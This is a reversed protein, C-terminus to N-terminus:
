VIAAKLKDLEDPYYIEDWGAASLANLDDQDWAGDIFLIIKNVGPRHTFANITSNWTYRLGVVRGCLEKRKDRPDKAASQWNIITNQIKVVTTTGTNQPLGAKEAFCAQYQIPSIDPIYRKLILYLPDFMRYTCLKVEIISNILTKETKKSDILSNIQKIGIERLKLALTKSVGEILERKFPSPRRMIWSSFGFGGGFQNASTLDSPTGFGNSIVDRAMQAIGYGNSLNKHAKILEMTYTVIWIDDPPWSEPAEEQKILANPDSALEIVCCFFFEPDILRDVNNKFYKGICSINPLNRLQKIWSQMVDNSDMSHYLFILSDDDLLSVASAIDPDTPTAKGISKGAFGISYIYDPFDEIKMRRNRYLALAKEVDEFVLLKSIGRRLYTAHAVPAQNPVRRKEMDWLSHNNIKQHIFCGEVDSLLNDLLYAVTRDTEWIKQLEIAKQDQDVPLSFANRNVWDILEKGYSQEEVILQSEFIERQFEKMGDKMVADFIINILIPETSLYTKIECLEGTNRWCKRNSEKASGQHTVMIIYDPHDKDCGILFDPEISVKEPTVNWLIPSSIIGNKRLRELVVKIIAEYAKGEKGGAM